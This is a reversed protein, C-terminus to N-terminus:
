PLVFGYLCRILISPPTNVYLGYKLLYLAYESRLLELVWLRGLSIDAGGKSGKEAEDLEDLLKFNRAIYFPIIIILIYICWPVRHTFM